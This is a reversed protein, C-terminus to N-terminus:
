RSISSHMRSYTLERVAPPVAYTTSMTNSIKHNIYRLCRLLLHWHLVCDDHTKTSPPELSLTRPVLEEVCPQQPRM